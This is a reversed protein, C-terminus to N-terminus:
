GEAGFRSGLGWVDGKGMLFIYLCICHVYIYIYTYKMYIYVYIHIYIYIDRERERWLRAKLVQVEFWSEGRILPGTTVASALPAFRSSAWVLRFGM